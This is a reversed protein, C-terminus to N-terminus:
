PSVQAIHTRRHQISSNFRNDPAFSPVYNRKDSSISRAQKAWLLHSFLAVTFDFKEPKYLLLSFQRFQLTVFERFRSGIKALLVLSNMFQNDEHYGAVYKMDFEKLLRLGVQQTNGGFRNLSSLSPKLKIRHNGLVSNRGCYAITV